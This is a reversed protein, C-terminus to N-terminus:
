SVAGILTYFCNLTTDETLYFCVHYIQYIRQPSFNESNGALHVIQKRIKWKNFFRDSCFLLLAKKEEEEMYYVLLRLFRNLDKKGCNLQCSKYIKLSM